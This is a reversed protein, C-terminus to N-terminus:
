ILISLLFHSSNWGGYTKSALSVWIISSSSLRLSIRLCNRTTSRLRNECFIYFQFNVCEFHFINTIWVALCFFIGSLWVIPIPHLSQLRDTICHPLVLFAVWRFVLLIELRRKKVAGVAELNGSSPGQLPANIRM